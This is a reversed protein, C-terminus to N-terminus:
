VQEKNDLRAEIRDLRRHLAHLERLIMLHTKQADIGVPSDPNAIEVAVAEEDWAEGTM